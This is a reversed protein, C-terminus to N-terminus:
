WSRGSFDAVAGVRTAPVVPASRHSAWKLKPEMPEFRDGQGRHVLARAHAGALVALVDDVRLQQGPRDVPDTLLHLDELDLADAPEGIARHVEVGGVVVGVAERGMASRVPVLDARAGVEVLAGRHELHLGLVTGSLGDLVAEGVIPAGAIEIGGGPREGGRHLLRTDVGLVEHRDEGGRVQAGRQQEGFRLHPGRDIRVVRHTVAVAPLDPEGGLQDHLGLGVAPGAREVTRQPGETGSGLRDGLVAGAESGDM